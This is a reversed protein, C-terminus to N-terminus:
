RGIRSLVDARLFREVFLMFLISPVLLILATISAIQYNGGMGASYLLLPLTSVTPVGVFFTGTFEDGGMGARLQEVEIAALRGREM